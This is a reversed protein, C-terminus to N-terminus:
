QGEQVRRWIDAGALVTSVASLMGVTAPSATLWGTTTGPIFLDCADIVVKKMIKRRLTVKERMRSEVEEAEREKSKKEDAEDAGAVNEVALGYSRLGWLEWLGGLIGLSLSYFWFRMAEVFLGPAWTTSVVGMSDLITFSELLLYMGLCSWKGFELAALVGGSQESLVRFALAFADVFKLFRLYRRGLALQTRAQLWPAAAAATLSYAAVIQALSQLLRLTKELGAADGVFRSLQSAAKIAASM